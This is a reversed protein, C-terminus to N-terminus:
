VYNYEKKADFSPCAKKVGPLDRHGVVPLNGYKDRLKQVLRSLAIRQAYTRTDFPKLSGVMLGGVYAVHISTHNFGAAGNAVCESTMFISTPLKQLYSITGDLHVLAHYGFHKWGHGVPPPSLHWRRIEDVSVERGQPTATCHIVIRQIRQM